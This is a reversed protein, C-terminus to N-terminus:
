TRHQRGIVSFATSPRNRNMLKGKDYVLMLNKVELDADNISGPSQDKIGSKLTKM